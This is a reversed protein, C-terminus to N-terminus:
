KILGRKRLYEIVEERLEEIQELYNLVDNRTYSKPIATYPHFEAAIRFKALKEFVESYDKSLYGLIYYEKLILGKERHDKVYFGNIAVKLTNVLNEAALSIFYLAEDIRDENLFRKALNIQDPSSM